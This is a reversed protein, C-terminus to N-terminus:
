SGEFRVDHSVTLASAWLDGEDEVSGVQDADDESSGQMVLEVSPVKM